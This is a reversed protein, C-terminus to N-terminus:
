SSHQYDIPKESRRRDFLPPSVSRIKWGLKRCLDRTSVGSEQKKIPAVIQSETFRTRKM